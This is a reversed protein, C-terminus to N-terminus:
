CGSVGFMQFPSRHRLFVPDLGLVQALPEAARGREVADRQGRGAPPHEPQQAGVPGALRRHDADQGREHPGVAPARRHGPEVHRAPRVLDPPADRQGTLVGADVVLEGPERVQDHDTPQEVQGAVLGAQPGGLQDGPEAEVIRRAPEDGPVGAPHAPTEVQGRAEHSM